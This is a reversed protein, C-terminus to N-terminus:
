WGTSRLLREFARVDLRSRRSQTAKLLRHTVREFVSRPDRLDAGEAGTLIAVQNWDKDWIDIKRFTKTGHQQLMQLVEKDWWTVPESTLSEFDIGARKYGSLWEPQVSHIEGKDWSGYMHRYERYIQLPGKQRHKIYEWAQYWRHKSVMREWAVYQFHVVVVDNLDLIPAGPPQPVRPSHIRKGQQPAGDDVFGFARPETPIWAHTFGPLINVWRFRLITGPKTKDLQRWEDSTAFNASLAEDGDLGILIRKGSLERACDLLLRQRHSEDFTASNNHVVTVGATRELAERTGDTSQQDAVIIDTAWCKTAALFSDIIWAENRVPTVCIRRIVDQDSSM